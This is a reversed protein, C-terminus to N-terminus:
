KAKINELEKTLCLFLRLVNLFCEREREREREDKRETFIQGISKGCLSTLLGAMGHWFLFSPWQVPHGFKLSTLAGSMSLVAM